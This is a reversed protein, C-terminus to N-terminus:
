FVFFLYVICVCKYMPLLRLLQLQKQVYYHMNLFGDLKAHVSRQQQGKILIERVTSLHEYYARLEHNTSSGEYSIVADVSDRASSLLKKKIKFEQPVNLENDSGEELASAMVVNSAFEEETLQQFEPDGKDMETILLLM